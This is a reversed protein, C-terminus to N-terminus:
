GGHCRQRCSIRKDAVIRAQQALVASKLGRTQKEQQEQQLTESMPILIDPHARMYDAAIEGIRSEQEPTFVPTIENAYLLSSHILIVSVGSAILAAKRKM